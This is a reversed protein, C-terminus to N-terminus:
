CGYITISICDNTQNNETDKRVLQFTVEFNTKPTGNKRKGNSIEQMM